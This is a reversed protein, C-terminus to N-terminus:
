NDTAPENETQMLVLLRNLLWICKGMMVTLDLLCGKEKASGLKDSDMYAKRLQELMPGSSSSLDLLLRVQEPSNTKVTDAAYNLLFDMAEV